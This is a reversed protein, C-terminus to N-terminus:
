NKFKSLNIPTNLLGSLKEPTTNGTKFLKPKPSNSVKSETKKLSVAPSQKSHIPTKNQFQTKQSLESESEIEKKIRNMTVSFSSRSFHLGQSALTQIIVKESVSNNKANLVDEYIERLRAKKKRLDSKTLKDLAAAIRSGSTIDIEM